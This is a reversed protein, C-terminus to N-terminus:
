GSKKAAGVSPFAPGRFTPGSMPDGSLERAAGSPTLARRLSAVDGVGSGRTDGVDM